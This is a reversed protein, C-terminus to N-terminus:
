HGHGAHSDMGSTIKVSKLAFAGDSVYKQGAKLGSKIEIRESDERGTQVEVAVFGKAEPVFVISKGEITQIANRMVTVPLNEASIKIQGTVFSGPLWKGSDNSLAVRVMVTRTKEDIVPNILLVRGTTTLGDSSQITVEMGPKILPFDKAPAQLIAWLNSTDAVTFLVKNKEVEEGLNADRFTITGSRAAKISIESFSDNEGPHTHQSQNISCDKCEPDTCQQQIKAGHARIQQIEESTLGLLQLKRESTRLKFENVKVVREFELLKQTLEFRINDRAAFYDAMAKEYSSQTNLFDNESIIKEKFLKSKRQFSKSNILYEAYSKLLQAGYDSMDGFSKKQLSPIDPMKELFDLLKRTNAAVTKFRKLDIVCCGVENFIEYFESKTQGLEASDIVALVEGKRVYDGISCNLRTVIGPARSVHHILTDANLRVEGSIRIEKYLSGASAKEIKIGSAKLQEPNLILLGPEHDHGAHSDHEAEDHDGHDHGAHSDHEAENEDGHEHGAHSDHKEEDGHDHGAHPDAQIEDTHDQESHNHGSHDTQAKITYTTTLLLCIVLAIHWKFLRNDNM